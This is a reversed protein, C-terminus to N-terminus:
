VTKMDKVHVHLSIAQLAILQYRSIPSNSKWEMYIKNPSETGLEIIIQQM